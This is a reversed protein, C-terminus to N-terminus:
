CSAPSWTAAVSRTPRACSTRGRSTIPVGSRLRSRSVKKPRRLREWAILRHRDPFVEALVSRYLAYTQTCAGGNCGFWLAAGLFLAGFLTSALGVGIQVGRPPPKQGPLLFVGMFNLAVAFAALAAVGAAVAIVVNALILRKAPDPAFVEAPPGLEALEPPLNPPLEVIPEPM